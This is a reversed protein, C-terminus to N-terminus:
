ARPPKGYQWRTKERDDANTAAKQQLNKNTADQAQELQAVRAELRQMAEKSDRALESVRAELRQMAEEM